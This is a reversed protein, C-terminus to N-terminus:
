PNRHLKLGLLLGLLTAIWQRPDRPVVVAAAAAAAAAVAVAAASSGLASIFLRPTHLLSQLPQM